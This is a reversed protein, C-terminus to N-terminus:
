VISWFITGEEFKVENTVEFPNTNISYGMVYGTDDNTVFVSKVPLIEGESLSVSVDDTVKIFTGDWTLGCSLTETEVVNNTNLTGNSNICDSPENSSYSSIIINFKTSASSPTVYEGGELHTMDETLSFKVNLNEKFDDVSHFDFILSQESM